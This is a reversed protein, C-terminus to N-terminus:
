VELLTLGPNARPADLLDTDATAFRLGELRAVAVLLRDFPDEHLLVIGASAVIAVLAVVLGTSRM